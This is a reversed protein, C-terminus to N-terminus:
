ATKRNMTIESLATFEERRDEALWEPTPPPSTSRPPKPKQPKTM